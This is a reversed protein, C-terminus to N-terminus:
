KKRRRLSRNGKSYLSFYVSSNPCATAIALATSLDQFHFEMCNNMKVVGFFLIFEFSFSFFFTKRKKGKKNNNSYYFIFVVKHIGKLFTLMNFFSYESEVILVDKSNKQRDNFYFHRSPTACKSHVLDQSWTVFICRSQMAKRQSKKVKPKLRHSLPTFFYVFFDM